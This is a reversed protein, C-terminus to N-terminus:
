AVGTSGFGGNGRETESLEKVIEFVPKEIKVVVLQIFRDGRFLQITENTPNHLNAQIEGRYDSDILGVTNVLRFGPCSSRPSILGVTDAKIEVSVGTGVKVTQGPHLLLDRDIRLDMGASGASGVYPVLDESTVKVKIM